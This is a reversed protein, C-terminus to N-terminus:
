VRDPSAASACPTAELQLTAHAIEFREHLMDSARDLLADDSDPDKRALVLHVSLATESTSMAWVHLDHLAVVGPLALLSQRVEPLAIHEPVGDFLLHLSQRFLSGTGWVVVGVILLSAIPDVWLWRTALM